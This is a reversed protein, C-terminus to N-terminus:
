WNFYAPKCFNNVVADEELYGFVGLGDVTFVSGAQPELLTLDDPRMTGVFLVNLNQDGFSVSTVLSAPISVTRLLEGTNPNIEIVQWLTLSLCKLLCQVENFYLVYFCIKLLLIQLCYFLSFLLRIHINM